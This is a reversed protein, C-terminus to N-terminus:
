PATIQGLYIIGNVSGPTINLLESIQKPKYGSAYMERAMEAEEYTTIRMRRNRSQVKADAWRCNLKTYNGSPDIRDLSTGIPREGMDEFFNPFISWREDFTVGTAGYRAYNPNKPNRCRQIMSDWSKYARTGRM